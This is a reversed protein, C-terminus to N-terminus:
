ILSRGGDITFINGTSYESFNEIVCIVFKAIEDASFIRRLPIKDLTENRKKIDSIWDKNMSTDCAGCSVGFVHINDPALELAMEKTLMEIGAKSIDYSMKNIRPKNSHVSLMNIVIGKDKMMEIIMKSCIFYGILNVDIVRKFDEIKIDCFKDVKQIAANNILIDIKKYNKKIINKARLVDNYISIDTEIYKFNKGLDCELKIGNKTDIDLGFVVAGSKVFNQTLAKGIGNNSGTVVVIKNQISIM